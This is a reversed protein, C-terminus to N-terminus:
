HKQSMTSFTGGQQKGVEYIIDGNTQVMSYQIVAHGVGGGVDRAHPRHVHRGMSHTESMTCVSAMAIAHKHYRYILPSM